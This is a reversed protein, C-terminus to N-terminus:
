GTALSKRGGHREVGRGDQTDGLEGADTHAIGLDRRQLGPEVADEAPDLLQVLHVDVADLRQRARWIAIRRRSSSIVSPPWASCTSALAGSRTPSKKVTGFTTSHAKGVEADGGGPVPQAALCNEARSSAWACKSPMAASIGASRKMVTVGSTASACASAASAAKACPLAPGSVPMGSAILSRNQVAPTRVVAPLRMRSLKTGGYSLVTVALRSRSPATNRPLVLRSSNAM